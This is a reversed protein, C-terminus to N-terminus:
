THYFTDYLSYKARLPNIHHLGFLLYNIYNYNAHNIHTQYIIIVMYHEFNILTSIFTMKDDVFYVSPITKIVGIIAISVCEFAYVIINNNSPITPPSFLQKRHYHKESEHWIKDYEKIYNNNDIDFLNVIISM